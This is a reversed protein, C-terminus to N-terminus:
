LNTSLSLNRIKKQARTTARFYYFHLTPSIMSRTIEENPLIKRTSTSVPRSNGPFKMSDPGIQWTRKRGADLDIVKTATLLDAPNVTLEPFQLGWENIKETVMTQGTLPDVKPKVLLLQTDFSPRSDSSKSWLGPDQEVLKYFVDTM